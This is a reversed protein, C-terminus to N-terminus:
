RRTAGTPDKPEAAGTAHRSATWAGYGIALIVLYSFVVQATIYAWGTVAQDAARALHIGVALLQFGAAFLPWFRRSRLAIWGLLALLAIDVGLIPWQTGRDGPDYVMRTIAWAMLYAGAALRADSRGRWVAVACVGLLATPWVWPPLQIHM